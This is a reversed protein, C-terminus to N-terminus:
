AAAEVLAGANFEGFALQCGFDDLQTFAAPSYHAELRFLVEGDQDVPDALSRKRRIDLAVLGSWKVGLSILGNIRGLAPGDGSRGGTEMESRGQQFGHNGQADFDNLYSQM